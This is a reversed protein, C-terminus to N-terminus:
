TSYLNMWLCSECSILSGHYIERWMDNFSFVSSINTLSGTNIILCMYIINHPGFDVHASISMPRSWCPGFDIPRSRRPGLDVQNRPHWKRYTNTGVQLLPTADGLWCYLVQISVSYRWSMIQVGDQKRRAWFMSHAAYSNLRNWPQRNVIGFIKVLKHLHITMIEFMCCYRM